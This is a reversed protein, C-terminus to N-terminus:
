ETTEYFVGKAYALAAEIADDVEHADITAGAKNLADTVYAVAKAKKGASDLGMAEAFNVAENALRGILARDKEAVKATIYRILIPRFSAALATVVGAIAVVLANLVPTWDM